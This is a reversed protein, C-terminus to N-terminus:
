RVDLSELYTQTRERTPCVCWNTRRFVSTVSRSDDRLRTSDCWPERYGRGIPSFLTSRTCFSNYILHNFVRKGDRHWMCFTAWYLGYVERSSILQCLATNKPNRTSAFAQASHLNSSSRILGPRYTAQDRDRVLAHPEDIEAPIPVGTNKGLLLACQATIDAITYSDGAIYARGSLEEDLWCM